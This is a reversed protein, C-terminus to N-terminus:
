IKKIPKNHGYWFSPMTSFMYKMDKCFTIKSRAYLADYTVREQWTTKRGIASVQWPGTIGPRVSILFKKLRDPIDNFEEASIPRPGVLSMDGKIVNLFQPFEDFGTHRLFKGFKTRREDDPLPKGNQDFASRMSKIKIMNFINGGQGIRQAVYFPNERLLLANIATLGIVPVALSVTCVSGVAIDFARKLSKNYNM